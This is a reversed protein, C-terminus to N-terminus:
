GADEAGADLYPDILYELLGRGFKAFWLQPDKQMLPEERRPPLRRARRLTEMALRLEEEKLLVITADSWCRMEQDLSEAALACDLSASLSSLWRELQRHQYAASLYLRSLGQPDREQLRQEREKLREAEAPRQPPVREELQAVRDRLDRALSVREVRKRWDFSTRHLLEMASTQEAATGTPAWLLPLLLVACLLWSQTRTEAQAKM